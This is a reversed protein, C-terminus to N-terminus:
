WWRKPPIAASTRVSREYDDCPRASSPEWVTSSSWTMLRRVVSVYFVRVYAPFLVFALFGILLLVMTVTLESPRM